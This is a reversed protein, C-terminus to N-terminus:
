DELSAGSFDSEWKQQNRDRQLPRIKRKGERELGEKWLFVLVGEGV